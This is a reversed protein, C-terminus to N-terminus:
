IAPCNRAHEIYMDRIQKYEGLGKIICEVKTGEALIRNKWSGPEDGAMDNLAHDGAVILMPTLFVKGPRRERVRELVPKIGPEFEGTGVCIEPHGDLVFQDNLLDYVALKSSASGHGMLALMERDKNMEFINELVLAFGRIDEQASLLPMGMRIKGFSDKFSSIVEAAQEFETGCLMHTPQVLVDDIGDGTMKKLAEEVSLISIGEDKLVKKRIFSSTWASYLKREPFANGLDAEIAEITNKRTQEYSTGFSVVLLGCNMKM